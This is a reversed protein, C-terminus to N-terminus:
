MTTQKAKFSEKSKWKQNTQKKQMPNMMKPHNNLNKKMTMMKVMQEKKKKKKMKKRMLRSMTKSDM